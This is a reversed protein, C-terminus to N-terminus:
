PGKAMWTAVMTGFALRKATQSAMSTWFARKMTKVSVEPTRGVFGTVLVEVLTTGVSTEHLTKVSTKARIQMLFWLLM